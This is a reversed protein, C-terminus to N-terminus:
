LSYMAGSATPWTMRVIPAAMDDTLHIAHFNRGITFM